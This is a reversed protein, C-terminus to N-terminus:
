FGDRMWPAPGAFIAGLRELDSDPGDLRGAARLEFPSHYGTYLPALGRADAKV